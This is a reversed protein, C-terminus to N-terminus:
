WLVLAPPTGISDCCTRTLQVKQLSEMKAFFGTEWAPLLNRYEVGLSIGVFLIFTLLFWLYDRCTMKTVLWKAGNINETKRNASYQNCYINYVKALINEINLACPFSMSVSRHWSFMSHSLYSSYIIRYNLESYSIKLLRMPQVEWQIEVWVSPLLFLIATSISFRKFWKQFICNESICFLDVLYISKLYRATLFSVKKM